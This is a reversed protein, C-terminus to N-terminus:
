FTYYFLISAYWSVSWSYSPACFTILNATQINNDSTYSSFCCDEDASTIRVQHSQMRATLKYLACLFFFQLLYQWMVVMLNGLSFCFYCMFVYMRLPVLNVIWPDSFQKTCGIGIFRGKMSWLVRCYLMEEIGTDIILWFSYVMIFFKQQIYSSKPPFM